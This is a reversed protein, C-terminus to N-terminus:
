SNAEASEPQLSKSESVQTLLCDMLPPSMLLDGQCITIIKEAIKCTFIRVELATAETLMTPEIVEYFISHLIHSSM